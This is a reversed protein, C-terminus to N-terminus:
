PTTPSRWNPSLFVVFQIVQYIYQASRSTNPINKKKVNFAQQMVVVKHCLAGRVISFFESLFLLLRWNM